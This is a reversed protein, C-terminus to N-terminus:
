EEDTDEECEIYTKCMTYNKIKLNCEYRCKVMKYFNKLFNKENLISLLEDIPNILNKIYYLLDLSLVTSYRTFYSYDEIKEFVRAKLDHVDVIVFELRTGAGVNEGRRKMKLMLQAQSPLAKVPYDEENCKLDNLRKERKKPDDSLPKIKYENIEKVSKTIIFDKYNIPSTYVKLIGEVLENLIKEKPEKHFISMVVHSYIDRAFKSNDRRKLLVGKKQIEDSVVGDRKCGLSM